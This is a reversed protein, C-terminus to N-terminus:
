RSSKPSLWAAILWSPDVRLSEQQSSLRQITVPEAVETTNLAHTALVRGAIEILTLDPAEAILALLWAAHPELPSRSKGGRPRPSINGTEDHRQM